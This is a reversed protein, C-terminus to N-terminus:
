MPPQENERVFRAARNEYRQFARVAASVSVYVDAPTEARPQHADGAAAARCLAVVAGVVALWALAAAMIPLTATATCAPWDM